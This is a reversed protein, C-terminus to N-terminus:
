ACEASAPAEGLNRRERNLDQAQRHEGLEGLGLDIMDSLGDAAGDGSVDTPHREATVEPAHARQMM